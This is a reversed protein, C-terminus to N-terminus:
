FREFGECGGLSIAFWNGPSVESASAVVVERNQADLLSAVGERIQQPGRLEHDEIFPALADALADDATAFGEATEDPTGAIAWSSDNTCDLSADPPFEALDIPEAPACGVAVAAFCLVLLFRRTM